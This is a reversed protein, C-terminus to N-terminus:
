LPARERRLRMARLGDIVGRSRGHRAAEPQQLVQEDDLDEAVGRGSRARIKPVLAREVAHGELVLVARPGVSEDVGIQQVVDLLLDRALERELSTRERRVAKM